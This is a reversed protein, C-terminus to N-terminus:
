KEKKGEQLSQPLSLLAGALEDIQAPSHDAHVSIRLRATGAPVTPPRVARVDFGLRQLYGAIDLARTNCGVPFPVIPSSMKETSMLGLKERLRGALELVRVRREPQSQVWQLATEVACCLFPPVATSYIFSRCRNILSDIVVRPGAVFAGSLAFSKGLTSVIALAEGAVGFEECLGSGRGQGFVGTAHADDVILQAGHRRTLELYRDLPAIDGDMSFLSETVLFTRGQPYPEKLIREIAGLDRHPYIVKRCRSLRMGDILSAHNWQDSLVRDGPGILTSFVGLNAQYGSPFLLAAETGKFIALRFELRRHFITEGRLLRSAPSLFPGSDCMEQFRSILVHHFEPDNALGLYDNSTFDTGRAPTLHRLLNQQKLETLNSQLEKLYSTM